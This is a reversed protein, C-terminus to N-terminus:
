SSSIHFICLLLKWFFFTMRCTWLLGLIYFFVMHRCVAIPFTGSRSKCYRTLYSCYYYYYYYYYYYHKKNLVPFFYFSPCVHFSKLSSIFIHIGVNALFGVCNLSLKFACYNYILSNGAVHKSLDFFTAVLCNSIFCFTYKSHVQFANLLLLHVVPHCVCFTVVPLVTHYGSSGTCLSVEM